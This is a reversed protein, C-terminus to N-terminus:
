SHGVFTATLPTASSFWTFWSGYAPISPLALYPMTFSNSDVGAAYSMLPLSLLQARAPWLFLLFVVGSVWLSPL